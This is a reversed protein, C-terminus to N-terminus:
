PIGISPVPILQLVDPGITIVRMVMCNCTMRTMNLMRLKAMKAGITDPGPNM